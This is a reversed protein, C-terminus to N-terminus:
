FLLAYKLFVTVYECTVTECRTTQDSSPLQASISMAVTKKHRAKVASIHNLKQLFATGGVPQSTPSTCQSSAVTETDNSSDVASSEPDTEGRAACLKSQGKSHSTSLALARTAADTPSMPQGSGTACASNSCADHGCGQTLQLFYQQILKRVNERTLFLFLYLILFICSQLLYNSPHLCSIVIIYM